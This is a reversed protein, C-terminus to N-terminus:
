KVDQILRVPLKYCSSLSLNGGYCGYYGRTSTHYVKFYTSWSWKKSDICKYWGYSFFVAGLEELQTWQESDFKNDSCSNTTIDIAIRLRNNWFDDPMLMFGEVGCVTCKVKLKDANPRQNALYDWEEASPTRWLGEKNGGNAIPNFVGWDYNANAGTLDGSKPGYDAANLDDETPQCGMFGSTGWGFIDIWGDLTPSCKENDEKSLREYQQKAFRFEYNKPHFQLNGQSFRIKKGDKM